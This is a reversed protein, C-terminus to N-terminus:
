YNGEAILQLVTELADYGERNFHHPYTGAEFPRGFEDTVYMTDMEFLIGTNPLAIVIGWGGLNGGTREGVLTAFGINKSLRAAFEATGRNAADTLLWVKGGYAGNEGFRDRHNQLMVFNVPFGYDMRALDSLVADPLENVEVLETAPIKGATAGTFPTTFNVRAGRLHGDVLEKNYDGQKIFVFGDVVLRSTLNPKIVYDIFFDVNGGRNGRIDIILHEFERIEDFFSLILEGEPAGDWIHFDNIGLYAIRNDQIIKTAVRPREITIRDLVVTAEAAETYRGSAILYAMEDALEHQGYLKIRDIFRQVSREHMNKFQWVDSEFLTLSPRQEYHAQVHSYYFRAISSPPKQVRHRARPDNMVHHFTNPRIFSFNGGITNAGLERWLVNFFEDVSIGPASAVMSSIYNVVARVDTGHAWYAVDILCFNNDLVYLLYELDDIMQYHTINRSDDAAIPIDADVPQAMGQVVPLHAFEDQTPVVETSRDAGLLLVIAVLSIIFIFSLSSFLITRKHSFLDKGFFNKM